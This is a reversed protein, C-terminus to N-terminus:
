ARDRIRPKQKEVHNKNILEGLLGTSFFQVGVVMLLIGLFLLPRNGIGEGVILKVYVMYMNILGGALLLLVGITGFFHLPKQLYRQVFTITVLDLFGNMFRSLGFKTKGYKRPHHKVEKETIRGFGERKALMPIYRHLEGYLYINKVVESRYAKLGCNFDHLEIGAVKRTVFNFFKSPITKSIPDHREKKWGSVLDYGDKLMQIMGPIENPDDQLDSDMTIIFEGGAEEFGAQLAVSKGYNNSFSIGHINSKKETLSTIQAWSGDSSGDDVFIIEYTLEKELAEAIARELEPLSEEENYVPAVVSVEVSYQSDTDEM